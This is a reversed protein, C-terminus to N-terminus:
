VTAGFLISLFEWAIGPTSLVFWIWGLTVYNFTLFMGASDSIQQQWKKEFPPFQKKFWGSWRNQILLGLGHWLGWIVFNITVGHWLGVLVMTSLQTIFLISIAPTKRKRLSRSLPNFFYSRFWNTLTMHWNSWFQTLNPKLYPRNFNEPLKINFYQALGIAIDTYGSFDFYIQFSFAYLLIWGGGASTPQLANQGSLAILSLSDALVFKKFLGRLIRESGAVLDDAYSGSIDTLSATFQDARAIPGAVFSPFFVLYTIYENLPIEPLRGAQKDRITHLLRFALYSFGLWSLEGATALSTSQGALARWAQSAMKTLGPTKLVLFLILLLTFLGWLGVPSNTRRYQSILALLSFVVVLFPLSGPLRPINVIGLARGPDIWRLSHLVLLVVLLLGLTKLHKSEARFAPSATAYWSIVMIGLGISPLWYGLYRLETDPQLWFIFVVSAIMLLNVWKTQRYILGLVLSATILILIEQITM